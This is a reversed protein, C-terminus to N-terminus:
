FFIGNVACTGPVAGAASDMRVRLGGNEVVSRSCVGDTAESRNRDLGVSLASVDSASTLDDFAFQIGDGEVYYQSEITIDALQKVTRVSCSFIGNVACDEDRVTPVADIQLDFTTTRLQYIGLGANFAIGENYACFKARLTSDGSSNGSETCEDGTRADLVLYRTAATEDGNQLAGLDYTTGGIHILGQGDTIADLFFHNFSVEALGSDIHQDGPTSLHAGTSTGLQVYDFNFLSDGTGVPVGSMDSVWQRLEAVNSWEGDGKLVIGGQNFERLDAVVRYRGGEVTTTIFQDRLTPTPDSVSVVNPHAYHLVAYHCDDMITGGASVCQCTEVAPVPVCQGAYAPQEDYDAPATDIIMGFLPSSVTSIEAGFEDVLTVVVGYAYNGTPLTTNSASTGDWTTSINTPSNVQTRGSIDTPAYTCNDIDYIVFTWDLFYDISGDEHGPLEVLPEVDANLVTDDHHGDGNPTLLPHDVAVNTLRLKSDDSITVVTSDLQPHAERVEIEVFSGPMSTLEVDLTHSGTGLDFEGELGDSKQNFDNPMAIADGDITVTGSSIRGEGGEGSRVSVCVDGPTSVDFSATHKQKRGAEREFRVPGYVTRGAECSSEGLTQPSSLVTIGGCVQGELAGRSSAPDTVDMDGACGAALAAPLCWWWWREIPRAM